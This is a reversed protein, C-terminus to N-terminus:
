RSAGFILGGALGWRWGTTEPDGFIFGGGPGGAARLSGYDHYHAHGALTLAVETGVPISVGLGPGVALGDEQLEVGSLAVDLRTWGLHADLFLHLAGPDGLAFRGTAGVGYQTVDSDDPRDDVGVLGLAATVGVALRETADIFLTSQFLPGPDLGEFDDGSWGGVGAVIEVGRPSVQASAPPPLLLVALALAAPLRGLSRM